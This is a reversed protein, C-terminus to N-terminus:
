EGVALGAAIKDMAQNHAAVAYSTAVTCAQVDSDSVVVFGAAPLGDPVGPNDGQAPASTPGPRYAGNPRVRNAAIYRDAATRADALEIAHAYDSDKAIQRSKDEAAKNVAIQAARAQDSAHIIQEVKALAADRQGIARSKGHWTWALALLAVILASQWPYRGVVGLLASFASKLRGWIGFLKVAGWLGFM